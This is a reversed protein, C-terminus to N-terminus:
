TSGGLLYYGVGLGACAALTGIMGLNLRFVAVLAGATLLLPVLRLSGPEPVDLTFGPARIENV